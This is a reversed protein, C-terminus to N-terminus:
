ANTPMETEGSPTDPDEGAPVGAETADAPAQVEDTDATDPQDPTTAAEAPESLSGFEIRKDVIESIEELLENPDRKAYGSQWDVRLEGNQLESDGKVSLKGRYGSQSLQAEIREKLPAAYEEQVRVSLRPEHLLNSMIEEAANAVENFGGQENLVPFLKKCIALALTATEKHFEELNDAQVQHIGSVQENLQGVVGILQQEIAGMAEQSGVAKGQNFGEQRVADLEEQSFTPEPPEEPEEREIGEEEAEERVIEEMLKVDDFDFDFLFKELEAM